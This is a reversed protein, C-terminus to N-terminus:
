SGRFMMGAMHAGHAPDGDHQAPGTLWRWAARLSTSACSPPSSSSRPSGTVSRAPRMCSRRCARAAGSSRPSSCASSSRASRSASPSIQWPPQARARVRPPPCPRRVAAQEADYMLPRCATSSARGQALSNASIARLGHLRRCLSVLGVHARSPSARTGAGYETTLFQGQSGPRARLDMQAHTLRPHSTLSTLLCSRDSVRSMLLERECRGSARQSASAIENEVAM